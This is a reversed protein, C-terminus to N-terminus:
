LVEPRPARGEQEGRIRDIKADMELIIADGDAYVGTGLLQARSRELRALDSLQDLPEHRLGDIDFSSGDGAGGDPAAEEAETELGAADAGVPFDGGADPHHHHEDDDSASVDFVDHTPAAHPQAAEYSADHPTGTATSGDDMAFFPPPSRAVDDVGVFGDVDRWQRPASASPRRQEDTARQQQQQQKRRRAERGKRHRQESARIQEAFVGLLRKLEDSSAPSAASGAAGGGAGIVTIRDVAATPGGAHPETTAGTAASAANASAKTHSEMEAQLELLRKAESAQVFDVLDNHQRALALYERRYHAAASAMKERLQSEAALQTALQQKGDALDRNLRQLESIHTQARHEGAAADVEKGQVKLMAAQLSDYDRQTAALRATVDGLMADREKVRAAQMESAQQVELLRERGRAEVTAVQEEHQQSIRLRHQDFAAERQELDAQRLRVQEATRQLHRAMGELEERFAEVEAHRSAHEAELAAVRRQKEAAWEAELKRQQEVRWVDLDFLAAYEPTDRLQAVAEEAAAM